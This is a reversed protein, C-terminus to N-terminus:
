VWRSRPRSWCRSARSWGSWPSSWAGARPWPPRPAGSAARRGAVIAAVLAALTVDGLGIALTTGGFAFGVGNSVQHASKLAALVARGVAMGAPVAPVAAAALLAATEILVLRRIQRPVAGAAKLLAIEKERQRVALSLTAATGFAIILAGWGGIM